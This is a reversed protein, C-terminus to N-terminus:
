RTEFTRCRRITGSEITIGSATQGLLSQARRIDERSFDNDEM